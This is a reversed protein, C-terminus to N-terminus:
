NNVRDFLGLGRENRANDAPVSSAEQAQTRTAGSQSISATTSRDVPVYDRSTGPASSTAAHTQDFFIGGQDFAGAGAETKVAQASAASATVALALLAASVTKNFM